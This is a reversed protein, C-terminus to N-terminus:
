AKCHFYVCKREGRGQAPQASCKPRNHKRAYADHGGRRWGNMINIDHENVDM